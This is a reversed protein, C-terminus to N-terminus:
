KFLCRVYLPSKLIQMLTSQFFFFPFFLYTLLWLGEVDYLEKRSLEERSISKLVKIKWTMIERSDNKKNIKTFNAVNVVTFSYFVHLKEFMNETLVVSIYCFCEQTSVTLYVTLFMCFLM